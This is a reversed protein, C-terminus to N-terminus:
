IFWEIEITEARINKDLIRLQREEYFVLSGAPVSQMLFVNAGITSGVPNNTPETRTSYESVNKAKAAGPVFAHYRDSALLTVNLANTCAVLSEVGSRIEVNAKLM